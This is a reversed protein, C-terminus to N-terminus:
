VSVQLIHSHGPGLRVFNRGIRWHFTRGELLEEASFAPPLGLTVPVVAVGEQPSRPDLNVVVIVTNDLARRVYAFLNENETQLFEVGELRQLAVNDRRIANLTKVLPLLPGDLKRQKAEYKESDLYEESGERM